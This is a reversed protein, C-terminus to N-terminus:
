QPSGSINCCEPRQRWFCDHKPNFHHTVKLRMIEPGRPAPAHKCNGRQLPSFEANRPIWCFDAGGFPVGSVREFSFPGFFNLFDREPLKSCSKRPTDMVSKVLHLALVTGWSKRRRGSDIADITVSPFRLYQLM